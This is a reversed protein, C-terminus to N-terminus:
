ADGGAAFIADAQAALKVEDIHTLARDLDVQQEARIQKLSDRFAELGVKEYARAVDAEAIQKDLFEIFVDTDRADGLHDTLDAINKEFRKLPKGPFAPQLVSLVARLRRTAVRLDHVAEVDNGARVGDLCRVIEAMPKDVLQRGAAKFPTQPGLAQAEATSDSM